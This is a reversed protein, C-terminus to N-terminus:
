RAGTEVSEILARAEAEQDLDHTRSVVNRLRIRALRGEGAAIESRARWLELEFSGSRTKGAAELWPLAEAPDEGAVELHTRAMGLQSRASPSQGRLGHDFSARAKALADRRATESGAANAVALWADGAAEHLEIPADALLALSGFTSEVVETRGARAAAVARGIRARPNKADAKLALEFQREALAVEGIRLALEGLRANSEARSLPVVQLRSSDFGRLQVLRVKPRKAELHKYIEKQLSEPDLGTAELAREPSGGDADLARRYADLRTRTASSPAGAFELTHAIAWCRASFREREPRTEESLDSRHLSAVLEGQKWGLVAQQFEPVISGVRSGSPTETMSRALQSVGEEYWLPRESRARDRLLRQAYRQRLEPTARAAFDRGGRFVLIPAEVEDILYAAQNRVAFPRGLSRDDFVFVPTPALLVIEDELGLLARLGAHFFELNRVFELTEESGLSSTVVFSETRVEVFEQREPARTACGALGIAAVLALVIPALERTSATRLLDAFSSFRIRAVRM